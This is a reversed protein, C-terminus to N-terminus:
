GIFLDARQDIALQRLTPLGMSDSGTDRAHIDAHKGPVAGCHLKQSRRQRSQVGLVEPQFSGM